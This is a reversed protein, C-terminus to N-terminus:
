ELFSAARPFTHVIWISADGNVAQWKHTRDAPYTVYDGASVEVEEGVPGVKIKGKRVFIHERAGYGHSPSTEVKGDFFRQAHIEMSGTSAIVVNVVSSSAM